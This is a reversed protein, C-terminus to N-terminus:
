AAAEPRSGWDDKWFGTERFTKVRGAHIDAPSQSPLPAPADDAWCEGNLWTAAHKTFKPDTWTPRQRRLAALITPLDVRNRATRYARVAAGRSKKLPYEPWFQEDFERDLAARPSETRSQRQETEPPTEPFTEDGNRTVATDQKARHKQVRETSIDSVFQHKDWEHPKLSGDEMADILGHQQLADLWAKVAEASARLSFAIDDIPPLTGGNEKAVCWLNILAKFLDGPLRQVKPKNIIDTHLRLWTV